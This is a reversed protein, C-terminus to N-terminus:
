NQFFFIKCDNKLSFKEENQWIKESNKISFSKRRLIMLNIKSVFDCVLPNFSQPFVQVSEFSGGRLNFDHSIPLNNQNKVRKDL